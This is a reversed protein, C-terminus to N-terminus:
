PYVFSNGLKNIRRRSGEHGQHNASKLRRLVRIMAVVAIGFSLNGAAAKQQFLPLSGIDESRFIKGFLLLHDPLRGFLKRDVFNQRLDLLNLV